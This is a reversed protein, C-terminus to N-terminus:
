VYTDVVGNRLSYWRTLPSAGGLDGIEGVPSALGGWGAPATWQPTQQQGQGSQGSGGGAQQQINVSVQQGGQALMERLRPLSAELTQTVVSHQTQFLIETQHGHVKVHVLMPGLQQPHLQLQAFHSGPTGALWCVRNGLANAFGPDALALPSTPSGPMLTQATQTGAGVVSAGGAGAQASLATVLPQATPMSTSSARGRVEATLLRDLEAQWSQVGVPPQAAGGKGDMLQLIEKLDGSSVRSAASPSSSKGKGIDSVSAPGTGAKPSPNPAQLQQLLPLLLATLPLDKGHKADSRKGNGGPAPKVKGGHSGAASRAVDRAATEVPSEQSPMKQTALAHAFGHGASSKGFAGGPVPSGSNGQATDVHAPM